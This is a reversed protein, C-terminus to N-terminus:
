PERLKGHRGRGLREPLPEQRKKQRQHEGVDQLRQAAGDVADIDALHDADVRRHM